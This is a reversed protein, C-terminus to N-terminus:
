RCGGGSAAGETYLGVRGLGLTPDDLLWGDIAQMLAAAAPRGDLQRATDLWRDPIRSASLAIIHEAGFPPTVQFPPTTWARKPDLTQKAEHAYYPYLLQVTGDATVNLVLLAEARPEIELTVEECERRRRDGGPIRVKIPTVAPLDNLHGLLQWKDIVAQVQSVTRASAVVDGLHTYLQGKGRDWVLAAQRAVVPQIRQLQGVLSQEAQPTEGQLGFPLPKAAVPKPPPTQLLSRSQAGAFEVTAEQRGETLSRVGEIVYRHLEGASLDRDQNSDAAGRLARALLVSAAGRAQGNVRIEHVLQTDLSGGVVVANAPVGARARAVAALAPPPVMDEEIPGYDALRTPLPEGAALSRTPTGSHCADVLLIVNHEAAQRVMDAVEADFIRQYNGPAQESFRSLMLPEDFGDGGGSGPSREAERGGHGSFTLVLTDGPAARQLLADWAKFIADRDAAENLLLTVDKAGADRLADSLDRADNVAGYLSPLREYRDIGIILGRLEAAAAWPAQCLLPLGLVAALLLFRRWKGPKMM